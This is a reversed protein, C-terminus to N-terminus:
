IAGGVWIRRNIDNIEYYKESAYFLHIKDKIGNSKMQNSPRVCEVASMPFETEKHDNKRREVGYKRVM